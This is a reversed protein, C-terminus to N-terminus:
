GQPDPVDCPEHVLLFQVHWTVVEGVLSVRSSGLRCYRTSEKWIRLGAQRVLRRAQRITLRYLGGAAYSDVGWRSKARSLYIAAREGLLHYPKFQHGGVPSYFPPFSLYVCGQPTLIRGIERLLRQPDEVHEILSACFVFPISGCVFPLSLADGLVFGIQSRDRPQRDLSIVHAGARELALGYGGHGCGLDLALSGELRVGSRKLYSVILDGQHAQFRVYAADDCLRERALRALSLWDRLASTVGM